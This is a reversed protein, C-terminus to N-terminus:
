EIVKLMYRGEFLPEEVLKRFPTSEKSILFEMDASPIHNRLARLVTLGDVGSDFMGIM